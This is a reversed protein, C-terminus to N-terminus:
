DKKSIDFFPRINAIEHPRGLVFTKGSATGETKTSKDDEGMGMM